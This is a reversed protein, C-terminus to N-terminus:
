GYGTSCCEWVTEVTGDCDLLMGLRVTAQSSCIELCVEANSLIAQRATLTLCKGAHRM